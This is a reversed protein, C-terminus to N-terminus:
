RGQRLGFLCHNHRETTVRRQRKIVAEICRLRRDRVQRPWRQMPAERSVTDGAQWIDFAALRLALPELAIGEAEEVQIDGLHRGGFALEVQEDGNIARALERDGLQDVLGVPSGCPLEELVQQFGHGTPM